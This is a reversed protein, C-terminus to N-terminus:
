PTDEEGVDDPKVLPAVEGEPEAKILQIEGGVRRVRATAAQEFGDPIAGGLREPLRRRLVRVSLDESGVEDFGGAGVAAMLAVAREDGEAAPAVAAALRRWRAAREGGVNGPLRVVKGKEAARLEILHDADEPLGYTLHHDHGVDLWAPVLWPSYLRSKITRVLASAGSGGNGMVALVLGVLYVGIAVTVVARVRDSVVPQVSPKESPPTM